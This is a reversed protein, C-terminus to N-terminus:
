GGMWAGLVLLNDGLAFQKTCRKRQTIENIGGEELPMEHHVRPKGAGGERGITAGDGGGGIWGVLMCVGNPLTALGSVICKANIAHKTHYVSASLSKPTEGLICSGFVGIARFPLKAVEPKALYILCM